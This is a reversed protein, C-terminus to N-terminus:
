ANLNPTTLLNDCAVDDNALATCLVIRTQIYTDTLIISKISKSVSDYVEALTTLVSADYRYKWLSFSLFYFCSIGFM